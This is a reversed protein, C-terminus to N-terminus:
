PNYTAISAAQRRNNIRGGGPNSIPFEPNAPTTLTHHAPREM